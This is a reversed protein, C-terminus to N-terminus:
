SDPLPKVDVEEVVRGGQRYTSRSRLWVQPMEKRCEYSTVTEVGIM